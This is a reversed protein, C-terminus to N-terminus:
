RVHTRTHGNEAIWREAMEYAEELSAPLEEISSLREWRKEVRQRDVKKGATWGCKVLYSDGVCEVGIGYIVGDDDVVSTGRVESDQYQRYIHLGFKQAWADLIPDIRAYAANM